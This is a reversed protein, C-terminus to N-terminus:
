DRFTRDFCVRWDVSPGRRCGNPRGDGPLSLPNRESQRARRSRSVPPKMREPGFPTPTTIVIGGMDESGWANGLQARFLVGEGAAIVEQRSASTAMVTELFEDEDGRRIYRSHSVVAAAFTRYSRYSKFETTPM